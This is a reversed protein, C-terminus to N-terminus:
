VNVTEPERVFAEEMEFEVELGVGGCARYYDALATLAAKIQEASLEPDFRISFDPKFEKPGEAKAM